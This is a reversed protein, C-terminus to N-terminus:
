RKTEVRSPVLVQGESNCIVASEALAIRNGSSMHSKHRSPDFIDGPAPWEVQFYGKLYDENFLAAFHNRLATLSEVDDKFTDFLFGDFMIFGKRLEDKNRAEAKHHLSIVAFYLDLLKPDCEDGGFGEINYFLDTLEQPIIRDLFENKATTDQQSLQELKMNAETIYRAQEANIRQLNQIEEILKDKNDKNLILLINGVEAKLEKLENGLNNRSNIVTTKLEYIDRSATSSDIVSEVSRVSGGVTVESKMKRMIAKLSNDVSSFQEKIKDIERRTKDSGSGGRFIQLGITFFACLILVVLCIMVPSVPDEAEDGAATATLAYIFVSLCILKKIIKNM